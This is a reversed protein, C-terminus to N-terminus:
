GGQSSGPQERLRGPQDEAEGQSIETIQAERDRTAGQTGPQEKPGLNSRPGGHSSELAERAASQPKRPQERPGGQCSPIGSFSRPIRRFSRPIGILSKPIGNCSRPIGDFGGPLGSIDYTHIM